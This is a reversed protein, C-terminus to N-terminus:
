KDLSFCRKRWSFGETSNETRRKTFIDDLKPLVAAAAADMSTLKVASMFVECHSRKNKDEETTKLPPERCDSGANMVRNGVLAFVIRICFREEFVCMHQM